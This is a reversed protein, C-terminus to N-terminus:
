SLVAELLSTVETRPVSLSKRVTCKQICKISNQWLDIGTFVKLSIKVTKM